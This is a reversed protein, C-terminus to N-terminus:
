GALGAVAAQAAELVPNMELAGRYASVAASLDGLRERAVGLNYLNEARHVPPLAQTEALKELMPVVEAVPIVDGELRVDARLRDHLWSPLGHQEGLRDVLEDVEELRGRAILSRLLFVVEMVDGRRDGADPSSLKSFASENLGYVASLGEWLARGARREDPSSLYVRALELDDGLIACVRAGHAAWHPRRSGLLRKNLERAAKDAGALCLAVALASPMTADRQHGVARLWDLVETPARGSSMERVAAQVEGPAGEEEAPVIGPLWRWAPRVRRGALSPRLIRRSWRSGALYDVVPLFPTLQDIRGHICVTLGAARIMALMRFVVARSRARELYYDLDNFLVANILGSEHWRLLCWALSFLGESEPVGVFEGDSYGDAFIRAVPGCDVQAARLGPTQVFADMIAFGFPRDDSLSGLVSGPPCVAAEQEAIPFFIGPSPGAPASRAYLILSPLIDTWVSPKGHDLGYDHPGCLAPKYRSKRCSLRRLLEGTEPDSTFLIELVIDVVFPLWPERDAAAEEVLVVCIGRMELEQILALTTARLAKEVDDVEPLGYADIVVARVPLRTDGLDGAGEKVPTLLLERIAQVAALKREASTMAERGARTRLLHEALVAGPRLEDPPSQWDSVSGEPLALAKAKYVLETPVFETTLYLTLGGQEKALAQALALALSTKGAGAAGRVLISTTEPQDVTKGVLLMGPPEFLYDVGSIPFARVLKDRM